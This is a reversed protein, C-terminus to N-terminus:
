LPYRDIKRYSITRTIGDFKVEASYTGDNPNTELLELVKASVDKNGTASGAREPEPCRAIIGLEHDRLSIAGHPGVDFSAFLSTFYELSMAGYAIGAFSGDPRDVRRAIVIGWKGNTRGLMPESMILGADPRERLLRFYSRDAINVPKAVSLDTGCRVNGAEDALRLGDLQPLQTLRRALYANVNEEDIAGIALQRQAEHVVATLSVDAKDLAGLVNLELARALNQTSLAAQHEYQSMSHYISRGVLLYVFLNVLFIRTALRTIYSRSTTM